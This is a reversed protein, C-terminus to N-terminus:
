PNGEEMLEEASEMELILKNGPFLFLSSLNEPTIKTMIKFEFQLLYVASM